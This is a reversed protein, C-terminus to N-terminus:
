RKGNLRDVMFGGFFIQSLAGDDYETLNKIKKLANKKKPDYIGELAYAYCKCFDRELLPLRQGHMTYKRLGIRWWTQASPIELAAITSGIDVLESAEYSFGLSAASYYSNVSESMSKLHLSHAFANLDDIVDAKLLWSHGAVGVLKGDISEFRFDDLVNVDSSLLKRHLPHALMLLEGRGETDWKYELCFPKNISANGSVPYCSGYQDPVSELQPNPLVAIRIVGCFAGSSKLSSAKRSFSIPM